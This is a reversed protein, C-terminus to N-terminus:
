GSLVVVNPIDFPNDQNIPGSDTGYYDTSRMYAFTYTGAIDFSGLGIHGDANCAQEHSGSSNVGCSLKATGSDPRNYYVYLHGVGGDDEARM